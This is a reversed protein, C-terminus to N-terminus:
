GLPEEGLEIVRENRMEHLRKPAYMSLLSVRHNVRKLAEDYKEYDEHRNTDEYLTRLRFLLEQARLWDGEEEMRPIERETRAILDRIEQLLEDTAM